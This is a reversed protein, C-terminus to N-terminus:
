LGTTADKATLRGGGLRGEVTNDGCFHDSLSSTSRLFGSSFIFPIWTLNRGVGREEFM